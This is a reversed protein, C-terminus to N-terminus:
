KSAMSTGFSPRSLLKTKPTSCVGLMAPMSPLRALYHGPTRVPNGIRTLRGYGDAVGGGLSFRAILRWLRELDAGDQAMVYMGLEMRRGFLYEKERLTGDAATFSAPLIATSAIGHVFRSEFEGQVLPHGARDKGYHLEGRELCYEPRLWAGDEVVFMPTFRLWANLKEEAEKYPNGNSWGAGYERAWAAVWAGWVNRAPVFYRTRIITGLRHWGIQIPSEARYHLRYCSWPM